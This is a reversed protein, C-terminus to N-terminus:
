QGKGQKLNIGCSDGEYEYQNSENKWKSLKLEEKPKQFKRM